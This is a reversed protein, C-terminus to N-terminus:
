IENKLIINKKFLWKFLIEWEDYETLQGKATGHRKVIGGWGEGQVLGEGGGWAKVRM